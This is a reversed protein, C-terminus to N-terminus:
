SHLPTLYASIMHVVAHVHVYLMSPIQILEMLTPYTYSPMKLKLEVSQLNRNRSVGVEACSKKKKQLSAHPHFLKTLIRLLKSRTHENQM